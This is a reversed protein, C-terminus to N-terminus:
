FRNGILVGCQPCMIVRLKETYHNDTEYTATIDVSIFDQNGEIKEKDDYDYVYRYHCASCEAEKLCHEKDVNSM